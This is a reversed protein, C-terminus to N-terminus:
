ATFNRKLSNAGSHKLEPFVGGHFNDVTSSLPAFDTWHQSLM